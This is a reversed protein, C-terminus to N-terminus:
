PRSTVGPRNGALESRAIQLPQARVNIRLRAPDVARRFMAPRQRERVGHAVPQIVHRLRIRFALSTSLAARQGGVLPPTAIRGARELWGLRRMDASRITCPAAQDHLHRRDSLDLEDTLCSVGVPPTQPAVVGCAVFWLM